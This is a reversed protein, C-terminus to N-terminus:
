LRVKVRSKMARIRDRSRPRAREGFENALLARPLGSEVELRPRGHDATVGLSARSLRLSCRLSPSTATFGRRGSQAAGHPPMLVWPLCSNAARRSASSSASPRLRALRLSSDRSSLRWRLGHLDDLGLPLRAPLRPPSRTATRPVPGETAARSSYGPMVMVPVPLLLGRLAVARLLRSRRSLAGALPARRLATSAAM